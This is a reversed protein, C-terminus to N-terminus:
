PRFGQWRGEESGDRERLTLAVHGDELSIRTVRAGLRVSADPLGAALARVLAGTGGVLRMSRPEQPYGSHRQPPRNPLREVLVDGEDHQPFAALGLEAVVAAMAPHMGPWFWAPGLDFDDASVHGGADVSLIRGGLRDRAEVLRFGIGESQLLRAAHLGALGGGVIAVPVAAALQSAGVM